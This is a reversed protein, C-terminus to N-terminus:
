AFATPNLLDNVQRQFDNFARDDLVPMAGVTPLERELEVWSRCGAYTAAEPLEFAKPVQFVRVTLALLGPRRYTFRSQITESSWICLPALRFAGVIDHLQYSGIVEAFHTLRLTGAAPRQAQVQALLPQAEPKIGASQQHVYTPYLWFRKHKLQFDGGPEAIGGKRLLLSQKGTALAECIAAWEKLAYKLMIM